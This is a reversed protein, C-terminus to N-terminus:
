RGKMVEKRGEKGRKIQREAERSSEGGTGMKKKKYDKDRIILM